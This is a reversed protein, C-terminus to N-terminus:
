YSIKTHPIDGKAIAVTISQALFGDGLGDKDIIKKIAGMVENNIRAHHARNNERAKAEDDLRKQEAAARDRERQVAADAELKAKAEAAIRAEDSKRLKEASDAADQIAKKEAAALSSALDAEAKAARDKEAQVAAAADRTAKEAAEREMRAREDAAAKQRAEEADKADQAVKAARLAELEAKECEAQQAKELRVTLADTHHKIRENAFDAFEEWQRITMEKSIFDLSATIQQINSNASHAFGAMEDMRQMANKHGEVRATEAAEFADLPARVEKQLSELKDWIVKREADVAKTKEKLDSNFVKGVKDLFNKSQAIKYAMAAIEKRGTETAVDAVFTSVENKIAEFVPLTGGVAFLDGPTLEALVALDTGPGQLIIKSM